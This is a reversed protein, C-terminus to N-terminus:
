SKTKLKAKAGNEDERINKPLVVYKIFSSAHVDIETRTPCGISNWSDVHGNGVYFDLAKLNSVNLKEYNVYQIEMLEDIHKQTLSNCYQPILKSLEKRNTETITYSICKEFLNASIIESEPFNFKDPFNNAMSLIDTNFVDLKLSTNTIKKKLM